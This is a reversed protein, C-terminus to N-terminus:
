FHTHEFLHDWLESLVNRQSPTLNKMIMIYDDNQNFAALTWNASGHALIQNDILVFKHHMIENQDSLCLPINAQKLAQVVKRSAAFATGKDIVVKVDVGREKAKKLADVFDTRTFTFMAVRITKEASQILNKVETVANKDDPLFHFEISQDNVLFSTVPIPEEFYNKSLQDAKKLLLAAIEPQDFEVMLNSHTKLSERTINASGLLCHKEDIVLIKLHMLGESHRAIKKIEKTLQRHVGKSADADYIVIVNIGQKAKENLAQIVKADRLTYTILLISNNAKRISQIVANELHDGVQSCLIQPVEGDARLFPTEFDLFVITIFLAFLFIFIKKNM